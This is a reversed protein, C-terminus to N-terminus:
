RGHRMEPDHASVIRDRGGGKVIGVEEEEANGDSGSGAADTLALKPQGGDPGGPDSPTEKAPVRRVDQILIQSLLRSCALIKEARGDDECLGELAQRARALLAGSDSVIRAPFRRRQKRDSWDINAQGKLSKGVYLGYGEAAAWDGAKMGELEALAGILLRIGDGILNYTDRVAGKGLIATTDVALQMRRGKLLGRNRAHEISRAFIQKAKDHVILQSRFLQLTSRAFPREEPATGLAVKWRLDYDARQKAENDSCRDHAQLLTATALLAPSVSPRGNDICYLEAFDEDKFLEGRLAALRGYFSDRGVFDLLHRDTQFFQFRTSMAKPSTSSESSVGKVAASARSLSCRQDPQFGTRSTSSHMSAALASGSGVAVGAGVGVGVGAGVAVGVGAGAAVGSILM